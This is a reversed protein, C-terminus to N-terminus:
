FKCRMRTGVEVERSWRDRLSRSNEFRPDSELRQIKHVQRVCDATDSNTENGIRALAKNPGAIRMDVALLNPFGNCRENTRMGSTMANMYHGKKNTCEMIEMRGNWCTLKIEFANASLLNSPSVATMYCEDAKLSAPVTDVTCEGRVYRLVKPHLELKNARRFKALCNKWEISDWHQSKANLQTATGSVQASAPSLCMAVAAALIVASFTINRLIM